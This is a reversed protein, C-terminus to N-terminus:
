NFNCECPIKGCSYCGKSFIRQYEVGLDKKLINFIRLFLVFQETSRDIINGFYMKKGEKKFRRVVYNLENQGRLLALNLKEIDRDLYIKGIMKQWGELDKPKGVPPRGTKSYNNNECKCICPISLCSPCKFPYRKWVEQELDLHYRNILSLLWGLSIILSESAKINDDDQLHKIYEFISKQNLYILDTVSYIRDNPVQYIKENSAILESITLKHNM